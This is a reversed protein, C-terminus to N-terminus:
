PMGIDLECIRTYCLMSCREGHALQRWFHGIRLGVKEGILGRVPGSLSVVFTKPTANWPLPTLM